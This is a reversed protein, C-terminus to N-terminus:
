FSGRLTLLMNRPAGYMNHFTSGGVSQLYSRDTLNNLALQANWQRNIRYGISASVTAYGGQRSGSTNYIDSQAQVGMGASWGALAGGLVQNSFRYHSWLKFLHRPTTDTAFRQGALSNDRLYKADLYTYSGAVEWGPALRGVIEAEWGQSQVEGAAMSCSGDFNEACIHTPDPDTMSRNKERIRFAALTVNLRNDLFAGKIGTEVQWGVRPDLLRGQYDKVTQPAFIDAYSAYWTLQPSLEWLLGGYPTFEHRVKSSETWPEAGAATIGRNRSEFSTWRGGLVLTLPDALKLRTVGYFGSEITYDNSTRAGRGPLLAGFDHNNLVDWNMVSVYNSNGKYDDTVRNYGLTLTHTRGLLQFPGSVSADVGTWVDDTQIRGLSVGVLGGNSPDVGSWAYAGYGTYDLSKRSLAGKATWGNGFQHSADVTVENLKRRAPESSGVFATRPTIRTGDAYTPLGFFNVREVDLHTLVVGLKTQPTLDYELVGYAVTNRAHGVDYFSDQDRHALVARGRLTGEANLPGTADVEARYHNWSGASLAMEVGATDKPRKRVYNVAGAPSGSGQLLGAPGRLVEVRDYLALDNHMYLLSALQPMGDFQAGLTYGRVSMREEGEYSDTRVGAVTQMAQAMSALGQDQIQTQTLVSVSQPIERLGLATKGISVAQAAYTGTGETVPSREAAATVRMEAMAAEAGRATPVAQLVHSGDPRRVAQLGTGKLLADLGDQASYRGNLGPSTKGQALEHTGALLLGSEGLFRTLVQALPGAPIAYSRAETATAATASAAAPTASQAQAAGMAAAMSGLLLLHVALSVPHRRAARQAPSVLPHSRSM